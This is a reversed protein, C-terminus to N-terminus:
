GLILVIHVWLALGGNPFSRLSGAAWRPPAAHSPCRPSNRPPLRPLGQASFSWTCLPASTRFREGWKWKGLPFRSSLPLHATHTRDGTGCNTVRGRKDGSCHSEMVAYRLLRVVVQYKIQLYHCGHHKRIGWALPKEGDSCRGEGLGESRGQCGIEGPDRVLRSWQMGRLLPQILPVLTM